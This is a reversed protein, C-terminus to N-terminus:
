RVFVQARSINENHSNNKSRRPRCSIHVDTQTVPSSLKALEPTLRRDRLARTRENFVHNLLEWRRMSICHHITESSDYRRSLIEQKHDVQHLWGWWGVVWTLCFPSAYSKDNTKSVSIYYAAFSEAKRTVM